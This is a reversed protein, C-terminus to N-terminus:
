AQSSDASQLREAAGVDCPEWIAALARRLAMLDFPKRLVPFGDHAVEKASDSFGTMLVIPLSPRTQRLKRAFDLGSMGGPMLIDSLVADIHDAGQLFSLADHPSSAFEVDYGLQDLYSKCVEAVPLNDEVVLVTRREPHPIPKNEPEEVVPRPEFEQRPL